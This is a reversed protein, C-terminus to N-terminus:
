HGWAADTIGPSAQFNFVPHTVPCMPFGVISLRSNALRCAESASFAYSTQAPETHPLFQVSQNQTRSLM